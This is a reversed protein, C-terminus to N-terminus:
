WKIDFRSMSYGDVKLMEDKIDKTLHTESISLIDFKMRHLLVQIEAMKAVLGNVNLHGIKLGISRLNEVLVDLPDLEEEIENM